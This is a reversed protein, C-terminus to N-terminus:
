DLLSAAWREAAVCPKYHKHSHWLESHGFYGRRVIGHVRGASGKGLGDVTALQLVYSRNTLIHGSTAGPGHELMLRIKSM